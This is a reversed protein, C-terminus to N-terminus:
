AHSGLDALNLRCHEPCGTWETNQHIFHLKNIQPAMRLSEPVRFILRLFGLFRHFEANIQPAM